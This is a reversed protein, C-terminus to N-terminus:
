FPLKEKFDPPKVVLVDCGVRELVREFTQGQVRKMTFYPRGAADLGMEHVPVIGLSRLRQRLEDVRPDDNPPSSM